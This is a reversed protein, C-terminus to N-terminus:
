EVLAGSQGAHRALLAPLQAVEDDVAIVRRSESLAQLLRAIVSEHPTSVGFHVPQGDRFVVLTPFNDVDIDGALAHDDEIDLWVFTSAPFAVALRTFISAFERCTGCWAACLAVVLMGGHHLRQALAARDTQVTTLVPKDPTPTM